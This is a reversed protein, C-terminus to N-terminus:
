NNNKKLIYGIFCFLFLNVYSRALICAHMHESPISTPVVSVLCVGSKATDPLFNWLKISPLPIPPAPRVDSCTYIYVRHTPGNIVKPAIHNHHIRYHRKEDESLRYKKPKTLPRSKGFDVVIPILPPSNEYAPVTDSLVIIIIITLNLTMTYSVMVIYQANDNGM